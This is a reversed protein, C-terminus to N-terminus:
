SGPDWRRNGIQVTLMDDVIRRPKNKVLVRTEEV